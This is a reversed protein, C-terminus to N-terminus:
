HSAQQTPRPAHIGLHHLLMLPVPVVIPVETLASWSPRWRM